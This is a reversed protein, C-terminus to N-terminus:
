DERLDHTDTVIRDVEDDVALIHGIHSEGAFVDVGEQATVQEPDHDQQQDKDFNEGGRHSEAGAAGPSDERGRQKDAGHEPGEEAMKCM